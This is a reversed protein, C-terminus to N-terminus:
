GRQGARGPCTDCNSCFADTFIILSLTHSETVSPWTVELISQLPNRDPPTSAHWTLNQSINELFSYFSLFSQISLNDCGCLQWARVDLVLRIVMRGQGHEGPLSQLGGPINQPSHSTTGPRCQSSPRPSHEDSCARHRSAHWWTSLSSWPPSLSKIIITLFLSPQLTPVLMLTSFTSVWSCKLGKWSLNKWSTNMYRCVSFM